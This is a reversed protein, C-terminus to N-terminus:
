LTSENPWSFLCIYLLFLIFPTLGQVGPAPPAPRQRLALEPLAHDQPGRATRAGRPLRGGGRGHAADRRGRGGAERQCDEGRGEEINERSRRRAQLFLIQCSHLNYTISFITEEMLLSQEIPGFPYM